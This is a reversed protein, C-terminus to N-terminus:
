SRYNPVTKSQTWCSATDIQDLPLIISLVEHFRQVSKVKDVAVPALSVSARLMRPVCHLEGVHVHLGHGLTGVAAEEDYGPVPM